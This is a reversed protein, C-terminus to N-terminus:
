RVLRHVRRVFLVVRFATVHKQHLQLFYPALLKVLALASLGFGKAACWDSLFIILVAFGTHIVLHIVTFSLNVAAHKVKNKRYHLTLLPIAGEVLWLLLMGGVLLALRQLPHQDLTQFYLIANHLM